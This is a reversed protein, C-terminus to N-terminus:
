LVTAVFFSFFPRWRHYFLTDQREEARGVEQRHHEKGGGDVFAFPFMSLRKPTKVITIKILAEAFVTGKPPPVSPSPRSKHNSLSAPYCWPWPRADHKPTRQMGGCGLCGDMAKRYAFVFVYANYTHYAISLKNDNFLCFPAAPLANPLLGGSCSPTPLFM